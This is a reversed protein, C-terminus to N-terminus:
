AATGLVVGAQTAAISVTPSDESVQAAPDAGVLGRASGARNCPIWTFVTILRRCISSRTRTAM